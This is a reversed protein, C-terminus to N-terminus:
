DPEKLLGWRLSLAYSMAGALLFALGLTLSLTGFVLAALEDDGTLQGRIVLIAVGLFVLVIGAQLARLVRQLVLTKRDIMRDFMSRVSASELFEAVEQGGRVQAVLHSMIQTERSIERWRLISHLVTWVVFMIVAFVGVIAALDEM